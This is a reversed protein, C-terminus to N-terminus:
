LTTKVYQEEDIEKHPENRGMLVAWVCPRRHSTVFSILDKEPHFEHASEYWTIIRDAAVKIASKWSRSDAWRSYELFTEAEERLMKLAEEERVSGPAINLEKCIEKLAEHEEM